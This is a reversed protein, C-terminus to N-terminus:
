SGHRELRRHQELRRVRRYAEFEDDCWRYEGWAEPLARCRDLRAGRVRTREISIM